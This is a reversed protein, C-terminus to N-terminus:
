GGGGAALLETWQKEDVIPKSIFKDFDGKEASARKTDYSSHLVSNYKLGLGVFNATVDNIQTEEEATVMKEDIVNSLQVKPYWTVMKEGNEINGIFGLAWYPYERALTKTFTAGKIAELARIADWLDIPFGVHTLGIEHKTERSVRRFIKSSAWKELTSGNGKIAVETLIPLREIKTDYEPMVGVDDMTTMPTLLLDEIGEFYLVDSLNIM